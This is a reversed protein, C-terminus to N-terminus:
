FGYEENFSDIEQLYLYYKITFNDNIKKLILYNNNDFEYANIGILTDSVDEVDYLSILNKLLSNIVYDSPLDKKLSKIGEIEVDKIYIEDKYKSSYVKKFSRNKINEKVNIKVIEEEKQKELFEKLYKDVDSFDMTINSDKLYLADFINVINYTEKNISFVFKNEEVKSKATSIIKQSINGGNLSKVIYVEDVNYDKLFYLYGDNYGLYNKEVTENKEYTFVGFYNDSVKGDKKLIFILLIAILLAIFIAVLIRKRNM